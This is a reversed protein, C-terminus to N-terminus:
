WSVEAAQVTAAWYIAEGNGKVQVLLADNTDDAVVEADWASDDKGLDTKIPAGVFGTTGGVNEIVGQFRYGASEGTDSRGVVMIDFTLTRSVAVTLLASSGDLYLDTWSDGSSERRLVYLSFQADGPRYLSGSAYALQGYHDSVAGDGGPVTADYGSATNHWGGVVSAGEVGATVSNGNYGGILNTSTLNQQTWLGPLALAYPAATLEQRGLPTHVSDGGCKVRVELWRADGTFIGNGFDLHVTFLGNSVPVTRTLPLGVQNGGAAQDYLRFAMSCPGNVPTGGQELQGQYTFGSGVPTAQVAAADASSAQACTVAALALLLALAVAGYLLAIKNM